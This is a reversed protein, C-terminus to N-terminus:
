FIKVEYCSAKEAFDAMFYGTCEDFVTSEVSDVTTRIGSRESVPIISVRLEVKKDATDQSETMDMSDEM